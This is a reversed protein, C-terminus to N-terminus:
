SKFAIAASTPGALPRVETREFGAARAWRDFQAGTYDFGGPLEILMNLSMLLGFANERRDDDIVNEIAVLMGGPSLGAYAKAILLEKQSEDWDHLINGMFYVDAPPFPDTFFDGVATSVRDGLGHKAINKAAVPEVPALDFSIGTLQPFAAAVMCSLGANAGGIDCFQHYQSLDIKECLASFAGIQAGQMGDLFVELLQPDAYIGEFLGPAGSKIENQPLGTRLAETLSGWFGYLRANAMEM